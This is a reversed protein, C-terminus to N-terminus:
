KEDRGAGRKNLVTGAEVALKAHALKATSMSNNFILRKRRLVCRVPPKDTTVLKGISTLQKGKWAHAGSAVAAAM